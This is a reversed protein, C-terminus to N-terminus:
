PCWFFVCTSEDLSYRKSKVIDNVHVVIVKYMLLYHKM